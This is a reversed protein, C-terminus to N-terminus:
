IDSYEIYRHNSHIVTIKNKKLCDRLVFLLSDFYLYSLWLIGVTVLYSNSGKLKREM